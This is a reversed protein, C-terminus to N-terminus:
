KKIRLSGKTFSDYWADKNLNIIEVGKKKASANIIQFDSALHKSLVKWHGYAGPPIFREAKQDNQAYGAGYDLDVGVLYIPNCGMLIAFSLAFVAVTCGTGYHKEYDTYQQLKEQLTVRSSDIRHCCKKTKSWAACPYSMFVPDCKVQEFAKKDAPQWMFPNNGYFSFDLSKRSEFFKRFNNLIKTCTHGKFHRTDYPLYDFDALQDILDYDTLDANDAFFIPVKYQNYAGKPYERMQWWWDNMLGSKLTFEGNSLIWYDPPTEYYNFWNNVSLRLLKKEAQLKQITSKHRNVSPGHGSVVCPMGKHKDIIDELTIRM